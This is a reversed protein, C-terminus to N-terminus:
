SLLQCQEEVREVHSRDNFLALKRKTCPMSHPIKNWDVEKQRNTQKITMPTCKYCAVRAQLVERYITKDKGAYQYGKGFQNQSTLWVEYVQTM